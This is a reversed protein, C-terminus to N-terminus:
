RVGVIDVREGYDVLCQVRKHHCDIKAQHAELCDMGLVVGYPGCLSFM